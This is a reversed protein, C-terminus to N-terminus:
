LCIKTCAEGELVYSAQRGHVIETRRGDTKNRPPEHDDACSSRVLLTGGRPRGTSLKDHTCPCELLRVLITAAHEGLDPAQDHPHRLLIRRPALKRSNALCVITKTVAM